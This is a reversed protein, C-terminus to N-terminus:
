NGKWLHESEPPSIAAPRICQGNEPGQLQIATFEKGYETLYM